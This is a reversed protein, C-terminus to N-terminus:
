DKPKNTFFTYHLFYSVYETKNRQAIRHEAAVLQRKTKWYQKRLEQVDVNGSELYRDLYIKVELAIHHNTKYSLKREKDYTARNVHIQFIPPLQSISTYQREKWTEVEVVQEDFATDLAEYINLPGSSMQVKIDSFYEENTRSQGQKNTTAIKLKGFFLRKIKDIQEGDTDYDEAKVACQLQWFINSICETVDQQRAAEETKKEVRPPEEPKQRPPVPPPRSPPASSPSPTPKITASEITRNESKTPSQPRQENARSPSAEGLPVLHMESTSVSAITKTPSLNEKDEFAQIQEDREISDLVMYDADGPTGPPPHEILTGESSADGATVINQTDSPAETKSDTIETNINNEVTTTNPNVPEQAGSIESLSPREGGVTSRRRITEEVATTLIAMNALSIAPRVTRENAVIMQRFLSGLLHVVPSTLLPM